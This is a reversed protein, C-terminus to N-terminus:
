VYYSAEELVELFPFEVLTSSFLLLLFSLIPSESGLVPANGNRKSDMKRVLIAVSLPIVSSKPVQWHLHSLVLKM